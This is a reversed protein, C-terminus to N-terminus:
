RRWRRVVCRRQRGRDCVASSCAPAAAARTASTSGSVAAFTDSSRKSFTGACPAPGRDASESAPACPPATGSRPRAPTRPGGAGRDGAAAALEDDRHRAAVDDLAVLAGALRGAHVGADDIEGAEVQDVRHQAARRRSTPRSAAPARPARSRWARRRARRRDSTRGCGRWRRRVAVEGVQHVLRRHVVLIAQAAAAERADHEGASPAPRRAASRRRRPM